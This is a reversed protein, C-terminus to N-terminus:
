FQTAPAEEPWTSPPWQDALLGHTEVMYRTISKFYARFENWERYKRDHPRHPRKPRPTEEAPPSGGLSGITTGRLSGITGNGIADQSLRQKVVDTLVQNVAALSRNSEALVKIVQVFVDKAPDDSFMPVQREDDAVPCTGPLVFASVNSIQGSAPWDVIRWGAVGVAM